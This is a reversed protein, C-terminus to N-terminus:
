NLLAIYRCATSAPNELPTDTEIFLDIDGGKANDQVCSGFLWIRADASFVERAIHLIREAQNETIRM